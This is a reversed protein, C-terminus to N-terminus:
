KTLIRHIKKGSLLFEAGFDKGLLMFEAWFNKGLLMFEAGLSLFLFSHGLSYQLMQFFIRGQPPAEVAKFNPIEGTSM